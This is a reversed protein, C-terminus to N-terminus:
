LGRINIKVLVISPSSKGEGNLGIRMVRIVASDQETVYLRSVHQNYRIRYARKNAGVPIACTDFFDTPNMTTM